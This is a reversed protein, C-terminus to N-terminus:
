ENPFEMKLVKVPQKRVSKKEIIQWTCGTQDSFVFSLEGFENKQISTAKLRKDTLVLDHVKKLDPVYFSHLTIGLEGIRQHQSRDPKPARPIFFKLKGCINNPSVFGQYWHTYGDEMMFVRKPGKLWDGDVEPPGEAKLGLATSLYSIAEMNDAKIFFDHHTFESTKLPAKPNITGYGEIHYGYRQFFVHNFFEGYVANERVLIPRKFFDFKNEKNLGFLDDAIPETPLWPQKANRAASYLDYLRMIDNTKMVAMRSGITEPTTYGVGNGLPQDWVFLRLLGHSDVDGNQLRYSTLASPVNYLARARDASIRASDVVSFGFEAFYRIAEAKNKVGMMVEYVGSIGTDPLNQQALSRKPLLWVLFLALFFSSALSRRMM